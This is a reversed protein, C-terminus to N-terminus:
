HNPKGLRSTLTGKRKYAGNCSLTLDLLQLHGKNKSNPKQVTKNKYTRFRWLLRDQVAQHRAPRLEDHEAAQPLVDAHPAIRPLLSRRKTTKIKIIFEVVKQETHGCHQPDPNMSDPYPDSDLIEISDPYPDLTKFITSFFYLQFKNSVSETKNLLVMVSVPQNLSLSPDQNFLDLGVPLVTQSFRAIVTRLITITRIRIRIIRCYKDHGSYIGHM